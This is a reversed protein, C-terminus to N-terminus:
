FIKTRVMQYMHAKTGEELHLRRTMDALQPHTYHSVAYLPKVPNLECMASTDVAKVNWEGNWVFTRQPDGCKYFARGQVVEASVAYLDCLAAFAQVSLESEKLLNDEVKARVSPRLAELAALKFQRDDVYNSFVRLTLFCSLLSDKKPKFHCGNKEFQELFM